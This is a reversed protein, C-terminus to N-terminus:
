QGIHPVDPRGGVSEDFMEERVKELASHLNDATRLKPDAEYDLIIVQLMKTLTQKHSYFETDDM